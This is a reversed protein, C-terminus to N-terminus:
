VNNYIHCLGNEEGFVQIAFHASGAAAEVHASVVLNKHEGVLVGLAEAARRQITALGQASGGGDHYGGRITVLIHFREALHPLCQALAAGRAMGQEYAQASSHHGVESAKGRGGELAADVEDVDGGCQQRHHICGYATLRADVEVAQFVFHAGEAFCHGHHYVCLEQLGQISFIHAGSIGLHQFM